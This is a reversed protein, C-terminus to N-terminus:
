AARLALRAQRATWWAQWRDVALQALAFTAIGALADMLYHNGTAMVVVGTLVPYLWVAWSWRRRPLIRWLALASWAAWGLHLSPMAAFQNAATALTGSHWSGFSHSRGVVDIYVSPDLLRPPAMPVLWFVIMALVNTLVLGSRLSRYRDPFWWWLVGVLGLTVAFHANDYYNGAIWALDGHRSLWHDLGAEPDLHLLREFHLLSHANALALTARVPSLNNIDDYIWALWAIFVLELWLM